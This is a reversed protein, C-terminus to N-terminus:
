PRNKFLLSVALTRREGRSLKGVSLIASKASKVLDISQDLTYLSQQPLYDSRIRESQLRVVRNGIKQLAAVGNL